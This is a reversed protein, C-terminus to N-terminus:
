LILSTLLWPYTKLVLRNQKRMMHKPPLSTAPHFCVSERGKMGELKKQLKKDAPIKAGELAKPDVSEGADMEEDDSDEFGKLLMAAHDDLKDEDSDSVNEDKDDDSVGNDEAEVESDPKPESEKKSKKSKVAAAASKKAPKEKKKDSIKLKRTGREMVSGWGGGADSDEDDDGSYFDAAKARKAGRPANTRTPM